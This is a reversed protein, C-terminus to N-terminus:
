TPSTIHSAGLELTFGKINIATRVIPENLDLKPGAITTAHPVAKTLWHPHCFSDVNGEHMGQVRGM